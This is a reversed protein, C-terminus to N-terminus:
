SNEAHWKKEEEIPIFEGLLSLVLVNHFADAMGQM